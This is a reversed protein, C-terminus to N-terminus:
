KERWFRPITRMGQAPNFSGLEITVAGQEVSDYLLAGNARYREVVTPHPHGYTNHKGRAILVAQPAVAEVFRQTSSSRSGHHPALLWQARLELGSGLLAEEAVADIDGTLILREGAAEIILVCSRQNAKGAEHWQWRSFNVQDWQWSAHSCPQAQMARPLREPEGSIVRAVAVGSIIAAAGGSHDNDAHSLMLMDLRSVGLARISPLVVREGLDFGPSRSGADYLLAHEATRVLVSLGQGVDLMVVEARGVAPRSVPTFLLPLLLLWGLNRGAIGPPLLLLFMGLAVSLWAGMPLGTPLWAPLWQAVYGLAVFLGELLGGAVWLLNAGLLPVPLLLTGLLSLPVIVLGVLPVAFLNVLPGSVSVPLGLGLLLPLLGLAMAWQARGLSRLWTWAGLRSSFILILLGAAGFSLWFGPQLSALPQWLLVLTLAVLMPLLVALHRFRWRWLLVLGVMVCARQVPVEFGALAGYTLAGIFALLCACPLWPLFRPWCGLRALGSILGYLLAALLGIHQGSIVMLHITGTHQLTRWDAQSMASGDGLVLAAIAGERAFAPTAIIRQRIRERWTAVGQGPAVREGVKVTGTAGIGQALLWVEYDFSQPNVLAHARKLRVAMRWTEGALVEPGNFWALRLVKPLKARSSQAGALQFRVVGDGREPLGIVQGQVWLTRGDLHTALRDDLAWQAFVCAWSFGLLFLALVYWRRLLLFLAVTVCLLLIPVSPLAPMFRLTLLGAILAIMPKLM